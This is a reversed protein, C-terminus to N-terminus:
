PSPNPTPHYHDGEAFHLTFLSFDFNSREAAPGRGKKPTPYVTFGELVNSRIQLGSTHLITIQLGLM